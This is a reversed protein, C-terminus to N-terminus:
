LTDSTRKPSSCGFGMTQTSDARGCDASTPRRPRCTEHTGHVSEHVAAFRTMQDGRRRARACRAAGHPRAGQRDQPQRGTRIEDTGAGALRHGLSAQVARLDSLARCSRGVQYRWSAKRSTGQQSNWFDPSKGSVPGNVPFKRSKIRTVAQHAIIARAIEFAQM